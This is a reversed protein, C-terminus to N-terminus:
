LRWHKKNNNEYADISIANQQTFQRAIGNSNATIDSSPTSCISHHSQKYSIQGHSHTHIRQQKFFSWKKEKRQNNNKRTQKAKKCEETKQSYGIHTLTLSHSLSILLSRFCACKKKRAGKNLITVTGDRIGVKPWPFIKRHLPIKELHITCVCTHLDIDYHHTHSKKRRM